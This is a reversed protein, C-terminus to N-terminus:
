TCMVAARRCPGGTTTLMLAVWRHDHFRGLVLNHPRKKSSSGLAFLAADTKRSFHELAGEGGAEFPRVEANKRTYKLADVQSARRPPTPVQLQTCM